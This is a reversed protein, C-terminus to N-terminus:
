VATSLVHTEAPAESGPANQFIFEVGDILVTEGTSDIIRTPEAISPSGFAPGKGLGSGVHGRVSHELQSGYMFMARRSMTSGVVVNEM